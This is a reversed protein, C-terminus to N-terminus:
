EKEPRHFPIIKASRVGKPANLDRMKDFYNDAGEQCLSELDNGWDVCLDASMLDDVKEMWPQLLIRGEGSDLNAKLLGYKRENEIESFIFDDEMEDASVVYQAECSYSGPEFAGIWHKDELVASQSLAVVEAMEESEAEVEVVAVEFVPRVLRVLFKRQQM